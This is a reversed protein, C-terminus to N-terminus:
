LNFGHRVSAETIVWIKVGTISLTYVSMLRFGQELSLQNEKWDQADIDGWDGSQYGAKGFVFILQQKTPRGALQHLRLGEKINAKAADSRTVLNSPTVPTAATAPAHASGAPRPDVAVEAGPTLLKAQPAEALTSQTATDPEEGPQAAVKTRKSSKTIKRFQKPKKTLNTGEVSNAFYM